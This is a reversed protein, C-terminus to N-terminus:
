RWRPRIFRLGRPFVPRSTAAAGGAVKIEIAGAAWAFSTTIANWSFTSMSGALYADAIKIYDAATAAISTAATAKTATGEDTVAGGIVISDSASTGSLSLAYSGSRNSGSAAGTVGVPTSTNYGTFDTASLGMYDIASTATFTVTMSTGTTVPATWIHCTVGYDAAAVEAVRSTWTLGASDSISFSGAQVNKQGHGIVVLLSNNSPTFSSSTLSNFGGALTDASRVTAALAM